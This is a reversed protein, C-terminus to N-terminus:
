QPNKVPNLQFPHGSNPGQLNPSNAFKTVNILDTQSCEILKYIQGFILRTIISEFVIDKTSLGFIEM